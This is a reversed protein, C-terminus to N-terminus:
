SIDHCAKRVICTMCDVPNDLDPEGHELSADCWARWKFSGLDCGTLSIYTSDDFRHGVGDPTRWCQVDNGGQPEDDTNRDM